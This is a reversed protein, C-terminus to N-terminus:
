QPRVGDVLSIRYIADYLGGHLSQASLIRCAELDEDRRARYPQEGLDWKRHLDQALLSLPLTSDRDATAATAIVATEGRMTLSHVLGGASLAVDDLHPSLFLHNM